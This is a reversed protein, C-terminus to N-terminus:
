ASFLLAETALDATSLDVLGTLKVITDTGNVWSNTTTADVAVYTNGQFQFWSVQVNNVNTTKASAAQLFDAFAATDGLSIASGLDTKDAITGTIVDMLGAFSVKDDTGFGTLTTYTNGNTSAINVNITDKGEGLTVVNLGTTAGTAGTHGLNLTDDGAGLDIAKTVGSAKYADSITVVDAGSGGTYTAKQGEIALTVTGTTAQTDVSKLNTLTANTLNLGATGAVTIATVAALNSGSGAGTAGLPM